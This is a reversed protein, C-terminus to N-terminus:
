EKLSVVNKSATNVFNEDNYLPQFHHRWHALLHRRNGAQYYVTSCRTLDKQTHDRFCVDLQSVPTGLM